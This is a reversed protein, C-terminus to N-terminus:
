FEDYAPDEKDGEILPKVDPLLSFETSAGLYICEWDIETKDKTGKESVM